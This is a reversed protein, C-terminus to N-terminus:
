RIPSSFALCAQEWAPPGGLCSLAVLPSPFRPRPTALLPLSFIASSALTSSKVLLYSGRIYVLLTRARRAKGRWSQQAMLASFSLACASSLKVATCGSISCCEPSGRSQGSRNGRITCQAKRLVAPLTAAGGLTSLAYRWPLSLLSSGM